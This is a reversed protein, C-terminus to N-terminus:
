KKPAPTTNWIDLHLKWSGDAQMKWIHVFKSSGWEDIKGEQHVTWLQTVVEYGIDGSVVLEITEQNKTRFGGEVNQKWVAAVKDKGTITERCNPMFIADDTWMDTVQEGNGTNIAERFKEVAKRLRELDPGENQQQICSFGTLFIFLVFM